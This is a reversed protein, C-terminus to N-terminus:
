QQNGKLYGMYRIPLMAFYNVDLLM